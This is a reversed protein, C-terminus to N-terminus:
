SLHVSPCLVFVSWSKPKRALTVGGPSVSWTSPSTHPSVSWVHTCPTNPKANWPRRANRSRKTWRSFVDILVLQPPNCFHGVGMIGSLMFNTAGTINCDIKLVGETSTTAMEDPAEDCRLRRTITLQHLTQCGPVYERRMRGMMYAEIFKKGPSGTAPVDKLATLIQSYCEEADSPIHAVPQILPHSRVKNLTPHDWGKAQV